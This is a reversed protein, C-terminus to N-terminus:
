KGKKGSVPPESGAAATASSDAGHDPDEPASLPSPEGPNEAPRAAYCHPCFGLDSAIGQTGCVSCGWM